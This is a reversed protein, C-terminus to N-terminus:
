QSTTSSSWREDTTEMSIGSPRINRSFFVNWNQNEGVCLWWFLLCGRRRRRRQVIMTMIITMTPPSPKFWHSISLGLSCYIAIAIYQLINCYNLIAIDNFIAIFIAFIVIIAIIITFTHNVAIYIKLIHFIAFIIVKSTSSPLINNYQM